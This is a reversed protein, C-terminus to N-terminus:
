FVPCVVEKIQELSILGMERYRSDFSEKHSAHVFFFGEPIVGSKVPSFIMDSRPSSLLCFGYDRGNVLVKDDEVYICDGAVGVVEKVLNSPIWPHSFVVYDGKSPVEVNGKKIFLTQPLSETRNIFISFRYSEPLCTCGFYILLFGLLVLFIKTNPKM